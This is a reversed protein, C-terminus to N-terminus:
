RRTKFYVFKAPFLGNGVDTENMQLYWDTLCVSLCDPLGTLRDSKMYLHFSHILPILMMGHPNQCIKATTILGRNISYHTYSRSGFFPNGLPFLSSVIFCLFTLLLTISWVPRELLPIIFKRFRRISHRVFPPTGVSWRIVKQFLRTAWVDQWKAHETISQM